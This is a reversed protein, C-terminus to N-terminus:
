RRAIQQATADTAPKDFLHAIWAERNGDPNIGWGAIVSGDRSVATAARLKWGPLSTRPESQNVLLERISRMGHAADWIFAEFGSKGGCFGVIISGDASTGFACSAGDGPLAGLGVMGTEQTWRFARDGPESLGVVVSGDASVAHAISGTDGSLAGLDVFGSALTWRFATRRGSEHELTGVVVEGDASVGSPEAEVVASHSPVLRSMGSTQTWIFAISPPPVLPSCSGVVVSGDTSIGSADGYICGPLNGLGQVGDYETWRVPETGGPVLRLGVVTSGDASTALAQSFGLGVMGQQRTWRFAETGAGSNSSGIVVSGDDSIGNPISDFIGGALDGLATFHHSPDCPRQATHRLTAAVVATLATLIAFAVTTKM